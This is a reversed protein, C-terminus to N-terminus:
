LQLREYIQFKYKYVNLDDPEHAEESILKWHSHDIDPFFVDGNLFIAHVRTIYMTEVHNITTEFIRNGGIIFADEVRDEKLRELVTEFSNFVLVEDKPRYDPTGTLVINLRGPLSHGISEYTKRGMIIPKGITLKKFYKLDAPLHWPLRGNEGIVNNDSVAVILSLKM